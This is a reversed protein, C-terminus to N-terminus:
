DLYSELANAADTLYSSLQAMTEDSTNLGAAASRLEEISEDTIATTVNALSSKQSDDLGEILETAQGLRKSALTQGIELTELNFETRKRIIEKNITNIYSLMAEVPDEKDNYAKLFAFNTYRALIYSGPYNTVAATSDMQKMLQSYERSTWPLEELADMNATANKAAPGLIAVLENSYDVQFKTDTYWKMFEWASEVDKSGSMIVLASTSSMSTNDISGDAQVTGPVPGFEWLGAIETAFIIINNYDTYTRIAIPMEGTRFRNAFDYDVSLSYQTFMNCMTEFAELSTNSDLNIRMGDDAWLEEGMQYMFIQYNQTLGIEMNNFQLIPILALLDDWTEPVDVGLESLIDTRYFMMEWTQTDPLAYVKGYLELPIMAAETFRSAIEDYDAFIERMKANNEKTAEDDDAADEYAEPNVAIVASRIAYQIPDVGTGPLAVDPGVGALVSPLLTGGAVLKLTANIGTTPGFDNDMLNRIIQAQDRGTTVWVEISREAEEDSASGGLSNYDTYFSAAFQRLEYWMAQFFNGEAKPLEVSAPQINIYDVELPQNKASNVWNGLTSVQDKLNSLNKAIEDEDTGMLRCYRAATELTSSNSSKINAMGEIYDVVDTLANAQVVLDEVVDPLVRGFGYDRYKDPSPGTLKLIELYDNNISDVIESVQRVVSGLEGLTVELKLTHTGPELYFQFTDAGNGIAEVQWNSDYNFKAYNAEEFPVEDDIYIKRSTYMGTQENQRYRMVIEYLGATEVEFEYEIWQGVTEWKESGITNLMIKASDQPETISSKRDYIPYVTYDSTASPTEADIHIVDTTAAEQKGSVYDDFSVKDEYPFVTIENIVMSERVGELSITNEGKEFYFEFPNAYYGNSDIFTYEKWEKEVYSTPRLENGNADKEFRGDTYNNKWTKKMLLYRAESFPVENNIYLVREISNTKDTVSCYTLKIAYLGASPVNVTWAVTGEDSVKLSKGSQGEYDSVVEVEATTESALYDTAQITVSGSGRTAGEHRSVYEEYSISKFTESIEQLTTKVDTETGDGDDALVPSVLASATMLFSLALSLLRKSTTKRMSGEEQLNKLCVSSRRLAEQVATDVTDSRHIIIFLKEIGM